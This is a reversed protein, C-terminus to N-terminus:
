GVKRRAEADLRSLEKACQQLRRQAADFSGSRCHTALRRLLDEEAGPEKRCARETLVAELAAAADASQSIQWLLRALGALNASHIKDVPLGVLSTKSVPHSRMPSPVTPPLPPDPLGLAARIAVQHNSERPQNLQVMHLPLDVIVRGFGEGRRLGVGDKVARQLLTAVEARQSASAGPQWLIHWTSGAVLAWDPTRPLGPVSNFGAIQRIGAYGREITLPSAGARGLLNWLVEGDLRTIPRLLSDIAITDSYLTLTFGNSADPDILPSHDQPLLLPYEQHSDEAPIRFFVELEGHGRTRSKGVHLLAPDHSVPCVALLASLLAPPGWLFGAFWTGAPIAETTYLQQDKGRLTGDDIETRQFSNREVGIPQLGLGTGLPVVQVYGSTPVLPAECNGHDDHYGCAELGGGRIVDRVGHADKHAKERGWVGQTYKCTLVSRPMPFPLSAKQTWPLAPYLPGFCVQEHVFMSQFPHQDTEWGHRLMYWALTGRLSSGPIFDLSGIVNGVEPADTLTLPGRARAFVLLVTGTARTPNVSDLPRLSESRKLGQSHEAAAERSDGLVSKLLHEFRGQDKSPLVLGHVLPHGEIVRCSVRARGKGRRRQGGLAEIRRLAMLLLLVARWDLEDDSYVVTQFCGAPADEVHFLHDELARGSTRDRSSRGHVQPTHDGPELYQANAFFVRGNDTGAIGFLHGTLTAPSNAGGSSGIWDLSPYLKVLQEAHWRTLGKLSSAPIYPLGHEDKVVVADVTRGLGSGSGVHFDTMVDISVEIHTAM